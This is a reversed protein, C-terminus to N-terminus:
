THTVPCSEQRTAGNPCGRILAQNAAGRPKDCGGVDKMPEQHWPMWRAGKSVQGSFSARTWQATRLIRVAGAPAGRTRGRYLPATRPWAPGHVGSRWRCGAPAPPAVPTLPTLLLWERLVWCRAPATGRRRSWRDPRLYAATSPRLGPSTGASQDTNWGQAGSRCPRGATTRPGGPHLCWRRALREKSLLHDLRV